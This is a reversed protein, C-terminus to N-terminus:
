DPPYTGEGSLSYNGSPYLSYFDHYGETPMGEEVDTKEYGDGWQVGNAGTPIIVSM